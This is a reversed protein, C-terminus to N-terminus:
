DHHGGQGPAVQPLIVAFAGNDAADKWGTAEFFAVPDEGSPVAVAVEPQRYVWSTPIYQYLTRVAGSEMTLDISYLGYYQSGKANAPDITYNSTDLSTIPTVPTEALAAATSLCLALALLLSLLKKM